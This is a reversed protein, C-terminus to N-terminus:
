YGEYCIMLEGDKNTSIFEVNENMCYSITKKANEKTCETFNHFNSFVVMKQKKGTVKVIDKVKM